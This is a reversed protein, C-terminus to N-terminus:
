NGVYLHNFGGGSQLVNQMQTQRSERRQMLLSGYQNLAQGDGSYPLQRATDLLHFRRRDFYGSTNTSGYRQSTNDNSWRDDRASTPETQTEFRGGGYHSRAESARYGNQEQAPLHVNGHYHSAAESARYGNPADPNEQRWNQAQVADSAALWLVLILLWTRM